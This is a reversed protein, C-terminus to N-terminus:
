SVFVNSCSYLIYIHHLIYRPRQVYKEVLMADDGFSKMSERKASELQQEFEDDNLAM